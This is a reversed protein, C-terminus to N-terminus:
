LKSANERRSQDRRNQVEELYWGSLFTITGLRIDQVRSKVILSNRNKDEWFFTESNFKGGLKTKVEETSVSPLGYKDTLAIVLDPLKENLVVATGLAVAGSPQFEFNFSTETLNGYDVRVEVGRGKPDCAGSRLVKTKFDSKLGYNDDNKLCIEVLTKAAEPQFLEIDKFTFPTKVTKSSKTVGQSNVSEGCGVMLFALLAAVFLGLRYRYTRAYSWVNQTAGWISSTLANATM